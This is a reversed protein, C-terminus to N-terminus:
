RRSLGRGRQVGRRLGRHHPVRARQSRCQRRERRVMRQGIADAPEHSYLTNGDDDRAACFTPGACIVDTLSSQCDEALQYKECQPDVSRDADRVVQWSTGGLSPATSVAIANGGAVLCLTASPCAVARYNGTLAEGWTLNTLSNGVGAFVTGGDDVALCLGDTPCALSALRHGASVVSKSWATPSADLANTAFVAGSDDAAACESGSSCSLATLVGTASIAGAQVSATPSSTHQARAAASSAAPMILLPLVALCVLPLSLRDAFAGAKARHFVTHSPHRAALYARCWGAVTSTDTRRRKPQRPGYSEAFTAGEDVM